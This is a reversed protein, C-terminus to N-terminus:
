VCGADRVRNDRWMRDQLRRAISVASRLTVDLNRCDESAFASASLGLPAESVVVKSMKLDPLLKVLDDRATPRACRRAKAIAILDVRHHAAAQGADGLAEDWRRAARASLDPPVFWRAPRM